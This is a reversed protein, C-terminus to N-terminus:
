KAVRFAGRMFPHIRCFYSYTGSPLDSPTSFRDTGSAASAIGRRFGLTTSDFDVPGNALPYAVGTRGNCPARCATITHQIDIGPAADENIFTLSQGQQILPLKTRKNLDGASYFFDKIDVPGAAPKAKLKRPDKLGGAEGGSNRNEPLEGHTPKGRTPYKSEFPDVGGANVGDYVAVGMIGMDEYTSIKSVDYTVRTTVVDGRKLKIRWSKPTATMSVNWSVKGMPEYYKAKSRFLMKTKGDRTVRLDNWLGGPHLHGATAILTSPRRVTWSQAPGRKRMEAPPAQDPFTFRGNTGYERKSNFVPYLSLGAVDMWQTRVTKLKAAAPATAPVFDVDYVVYVKDPTPTLNHIMDNLVWDDSPKYAWGFGKPAQIITKEEGAAFVPRFNILWVAHHLHLVDVRPISGDMRMLNPKFRTIYGPVKPRLQNARLKIDNAGPRIDIPGYCYRIRQMGEYKARPIDTKTSTKPKPCSNQAAQATAGGLLVCIALAL